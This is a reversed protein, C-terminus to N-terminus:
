SARFFCHGSFRSCMGECDATRLLGSFNSKEEKGTPLTSTARPKLSACGAGVSVLSTPLDLCPIRSLFDDARGLSSLQHITISCWIPVLVVGSRFQCESVTPAHAGMPRGLGTRHKGTSNVFDRGVGMM